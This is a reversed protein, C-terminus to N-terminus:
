SRCMTLSFTQLHHCQLFWLLPHLGIIKMHPTRIGDAIDYMILKEGEVTDDSVTLTLTLPYLLQYAVFKDEERVQTFNCIIDDGTVLKLVRVNHDITESM